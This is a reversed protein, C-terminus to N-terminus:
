MMEPRRIASGDSFREIRYASPDVFPTVNAVMESILHGAGPGIGFGHGSFGSAVVLGSVKDIRSIIPVPDHATDIAGGWAAAVGIGKLAPYEAVLNALGQRVLGMDPRPDLIRIKEFPSVKDFDWSGSAEPGNWFSNGIRFKLKKALKSRYMQYFKAAYRMGQPAINIVGHGPVALTYSGDIRRRLAFGPTSICGAQVVAAAPTTRLATGDVNAVPLDIGHRRCFRSNWAGGACVVADAKIFGRETWVGKVAGAQIELGRAACNQQLNVGLAKAGEVLAPVAMSPEAKGDTPSWVGGIWQSAGGGSRKKAEAASLIDSSFGIERAARGWKEWRAFDSENKTCYLIGERRFGLDRGIETGLEEWRRLSHMALPLEYLDRNQQRVWGWNRSSQEGAVIGKEILAVSLKRKALEYATSAGIIGAGIVVVDVASPFSTSDQVKDVTVPM